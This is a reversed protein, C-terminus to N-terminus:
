VSELEEDTSGSGSSVSGRSGGGRGGREFSTNAGVSLAGLSASAALGTNLSISPRAHTNLSGGGAHGSPSTPIGLGLGLGRGLGANRAPSYDHGGVSRAPSYHHAGLGFMEQEDLAYGAELPFSARHDPDLTLPDLLNPPADFDKAMQPTHYPTHPELAFPPEFSGRRSASSSTYDSPCASDPDPHQQESEDYEYGYQISSSLRSLAHGSSSSSMQNLHLLSPDLSAPLSLRKSAGAPLLPVNLPGHGNLQSNKPPLVLPECTSLPELRLGGGVATTNRRRRKENVNVYGPSDQTDSMSTSQM